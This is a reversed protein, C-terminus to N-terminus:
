FIEYFDEMLKKLVANERQIVTKLGQKRHNDDFKISANHDLAEKIDVWQPIVGHAAEREALRQKGLNGVECLYYYSTQEYVQGNQNLGYRLEQLKGYSRVNFVEMVGLEERLERFLADEFSEHAKKGGGPFTYDNFEPSYVMLVQNNKVIVGRVTTRTKRNAKLDIHEEIIVPVIWKM